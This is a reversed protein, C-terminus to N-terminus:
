IPYTKPYKRCRNSLMTLVVSVSLKVEFVGQVPGAVMELHDGPLIGSDAACFWIGMRDPVKGAEIPVPADKGPRVFSLDLRGKVKSLSPVANWSMTPIGDEAVYSMRWVKATSAYLHQM